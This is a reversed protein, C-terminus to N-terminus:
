YNKPEVRKVFLTSLNLLIFILVVAVCAYAFLDGNLTYFTLEGILPIDGELTRRQFIETTGAVEGTPLIIGTIGTNAARVLARRNEVARFVAMNFHQYPAASRGFWADNTISTLFDAGNEAFRRVLEPFIVEFCIATGFSGKDTWLVSYAKGTGFDGIATVMKSVFPLIRKMPVYEGFPVLHVKDYRGRELGDPGFLYASNYDIYRGDGLREFSPSGTMLWSGSERITDQLETKFATDQYYFPTATEPWIILDPRDKAAVLTMARYTDFVERQYAPDWKHAQEINGQVLAVKMTGISPPMYSLRYNGYSMVLALVVAALLPGALRLARRQGKDKWLDIIDTLAANILVVLASVGYVGTIDSMQIITISGHQSYGLLDWPFGSLFYNRLLELSVWLAPAFLTLTWKHRGCVVGLLLAFVGFYLALYASLLVLLLLSMPLGLGGYNHMTNIVWSISLLYFLFGAAFGYRFATGPAAGLSAYMLPVLAFWALVGIDPSPFSFILLIGTIVPLLYGTLRDM